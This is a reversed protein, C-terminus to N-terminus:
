VEDVRHVALRMGRAVLEDQARALWQPHRAPEDNGRFAMGCQGHVDDNVTRCGRGGVAEIARIDRRMEAVGIVLWAAKLTTTGAFSSVAPVCLM